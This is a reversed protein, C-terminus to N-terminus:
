EGGRSPSPCGGGGCARKSARRARPFRRGGVAACRLLLTSLFAGGRSTHRFPTLRVLRISGVVKAKQHISRASSRYISKRKAGGAAKLARREDDNAGGDESSTQELEISTVGRGGGGAAPQCAETSGAMCASVVWGKGWRSFGKVLCADRASDVQKTRFLGAALLRPHQPM